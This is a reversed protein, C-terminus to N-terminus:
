LFDMLSLRFGQAAVQLSANYATEAQRLQVVAETIDVEELESIQESFADLRRDHHDVVQEIQNLRAGVTGRELNVFERASQLAPIDVGSLSPIDGGTLSKALNTLAGHVQAFLTGGQINVQITENPGSEVVVANNDGNFTLGTPGMTFPRTANDQGAFIYEGDAGQSNGLDILRGMLTELERVMGDRGTQDTSSNAGRVAFEYAKKVIDSVESLANETFQLTKKGSEVNDKYQSVSSRLNRLSVSKAAGLPDESPVLFRKGTAVQRQLDFYREQTSSIDRQYTAFQYPTSIRM